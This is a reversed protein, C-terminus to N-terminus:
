VSSSRHPARRPIKPPPAHRLRVHVHEGAIQRAETLVPRSRATPYACRALAGRPIVSNSARMSTNPRRWRRRERYRGHRPPESIRSRRAANPCGGYMPSLPAGARARSFASGARPEKELSDTKGRECPARCRARCCEDRQLSLASVALRRATPPARPRERSVASCRPDRLCAGGHQRQEVLVDTDAVGVHMQAGRRGCQVRARARAASHASAETPGRRGHNRTKSRGDTACPSQDAADRAGLAIEFRPVPPASGAVAISFRGLLRENHSAPAYASASLM